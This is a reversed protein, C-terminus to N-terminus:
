TLKALRSTERSKKEKQNSRAKHLTKLFTPTMIEEELCQRAAKARELIINLPLSKSTSGSTSPLAEPSLHTFAPDDSFIPLGDQSHKCIHNEWTSANFWQM